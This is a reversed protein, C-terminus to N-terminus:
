LGNAEPTTNLPQQELKIISYSIRTDHRKTVQKRSRRSATWSHVVISPCKNVVVTTLFLCLARRKTECAKLDCCFVLLPILKTECANFDGYYYKYSVLIQRDYTRNCLLGPM